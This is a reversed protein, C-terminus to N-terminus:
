AAGAGTARRAPRVVRSKTAVASKRAAAVTRSAAAKIPRTKRAVTRRARVVPPEATKVVRAPTAPKGAAVRSLAEAGDGLKGSVVRAVQAGPMSLRVAAQIGNAVIPNEIGAAFAAVQKVGAAVTNSSALIAKRTRVSAVDVGKVIAHALKGRVECLKSTLEPALKKTRKDAMHGLGDNVADILRHSGARCAGVALTAANRYNEITDLTVRRLTQTSM